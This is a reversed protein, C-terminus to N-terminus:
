RGPKFFDLVTKTKTQGAPEGLGAAKAAVFFQRALAQAQADTEAKANASVELIDQTRAGQQLQWLEATVKQPFGQLTWQQRWVKSKVPGYRRLSEWHFNKMRESVMKRQAEDFLEAVAARGAAVELVLGRSLSAHDLSRSLAPGSEHTWDREPQIAREVDSLETADDIARLKVTSQGPEGAKERARLILGNAELAGDDTDFFCVSQKVARHEELKLAKMAQPTNAATVLLKFENKRAQPANPRPSPLEAGLLTEAGLALGM